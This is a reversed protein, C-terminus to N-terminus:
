VEEWGHFRGKEPISDFRDEQEIQGLEDNDPLPPKSEPKDEQKM